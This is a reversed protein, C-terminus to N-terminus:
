RLQGPEVGNKRAEEEVADIQGQVDKKQAELQEVKWSINERGGLKASQLDRIQTQIKELKQRLPALRDRYSSASDRGRAGTSESGGPPKGDGVVSVKGNLKGMEDETWVKKPKKAKSADPKPAAAAGDDPPPTQPQSAPQAQGPSSGSQGSGSPPAGSQASAAAPVSACLLFAWLL